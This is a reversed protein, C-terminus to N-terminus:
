EEKRFGFGFLPATAAAASALSVVGSLLALPQSM